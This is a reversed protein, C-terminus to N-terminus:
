GRNLHQTLTEYKIIVRKIEEFRATKIHQNITPATKGLLRAVEKQTSGSLLHVLVEAQRATVKELLSDAYGAIIEYTFDKEEDGSVIYFRRDSGTLRDFHRGSQIFLEDMSSGIKGTPTTLRGLSISVRIDIREDATYGIALLRSCVAKLLAPAADQLLVQFSDGRYFEITDHRFLSKLGAVLRDFEREPLRTSHVIDATLVAQMNM